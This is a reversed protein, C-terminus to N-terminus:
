KRRTRIEEESNEVKKNSNFLKYINELINRKKKLEDKTENYNTVNDNLPNINEKVQPNVSANIESTLTASQTLDYIMYNNLYEYIESESFTSKIGFRIGSVLGRKSILKKHKLDILWKVPSVEVWVYDGNKYKIGNSLKFWKSSYCSNAKVRIYKKGEYEYEGYKVASFPSENNTIPTQDFTYYNGTLQLNKDKIIYKKELVRQLNQDPVYQPYEGYEVEEIGNDGITKENCISNFLSTSLLLVPRITCNRDHIDIKNSFGAGSIIVAKDYFSSKTYVSGTRKLKDDIAVPFDQNEDFQAGTLIALDTIASVIGYKKLVDLRTRANMGVHDKFGIAEEESLFTLSLEKESYDNEDHRDVPSFYERYEDFNM